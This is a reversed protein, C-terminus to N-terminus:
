DQSAPLLRVEDPQFTCPLPTSETVPRVRIGEASTESVQFHGGFHGLSRNWVEVLSGPRISTTLPAAM